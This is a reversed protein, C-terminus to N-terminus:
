EAKLSTEASAENGIRVIKHDQASPAARLVCQVMQALDHALQLQCHILLLCPDAPNRVPLKVEQAITHQLCVRFPTRRPSVLRTSLAAHFILTPGEPDAKLLLDWVVGLQQPLSDHHHANSCFSSSFKLLADLLVFSLLGM